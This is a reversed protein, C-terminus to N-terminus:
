PYRNGVGRSDGHADAVGRRMAAVLVGATRAVERGPKLIVANASKIALSSIQTVAEPRAEFIVALLGLPCSVKELELGADLTTRELVRGIPDPLNAVARVGAIMSDLKAPSLALRELLVRALEGRTVEAQAERVDEAHAELIAGAEQELGQAVAELAQNREAVSAASIERAAQKAAVALSRVSESVAAKM